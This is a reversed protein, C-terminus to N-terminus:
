QARRALAVQRLRNADNYLAVLVGSRTATLWTVDEALMVASGLADGTQGDRVELNWPRSGRELWIKGGFLAISAPNDIEVVNLVEGRGVSVGILDGQEKSDPTPGATVWVKRTGVVLHRAKLDRPIDDDFSIPPRIEGEARFRIIGRDLLVWVTDAGSEVAAIAPGVHFRVPKLTKIPVRYISSGVPVWVDTSTVAPNCEITNDNFCAPQAPIQITRRVGATTPDLEMLTSDSAAGNPVSYLWLSGDGVTLGVAIGEIANLETPAGTDPDIRDIASRGSNLERRLAFVGAPGSAVIVRAEGMPFREGFVIGSKPEAATRDPSSGGGFLTAALGVTAALAALVITALAAVRRSRRPAPGSARGDISARAAKVFEACSPFRATPDKALAREMVSDFGAGLQAGALSPAPPPQQLHGLMVSVDSGTFPPQGTVCQFVVCALSYQDSRGSVGEGRIQEPSMYALTGVLHGIDTVTSHSGSQKTLGFDSLFAHERGDQPEVLINGPKVDRHVLGSAHAADLANAMQRAIELARGADLAGERLLMQKLDEGDIRRMALFLPETDDDAIDLIPVVNPHRFSQALRVERSFRHLFEADRNLHPAVVKLAVEDGAETRALYVVGMGGRAIVSVIEYRGITTGTVLDGGM